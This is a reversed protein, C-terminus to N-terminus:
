HKSLIENLTTASYINQLKKAFSEANPLFYGETPWKNGINPKESKKFSKVKKLYVEYVQRSAKVYANLYSLVEETTLSDEPISWTTAGMIDNLKWDKKPSEKHENHCTVCAPAAAFDPFMAINRESEKDYFFQPKKTKLIKEFKTEQTGTFQNAKAIPYNSGLYLGLEVESKELLKSTERLFLAPLPGAEVDKKQWNEDFKLGSQKGAQVIEKTYLARTEDNVRSLINFLDESSYSNKNKPHISFDDSSTPANYFLYVLAMSTLCLLTILFLNKRSMEKM